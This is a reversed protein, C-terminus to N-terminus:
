QFGPPRKTVKKQRTKLKMLRSTFNIDGEFFPMESNLSFIDTSDSSGIRFLFPHLTSALLIGILIPVVSSRKLSDSVLQRRDFLYSENIKSKLQRFGHKLAKQTLLPCESSETANEFIISCVFGTLKTDITDRVYDCAISIAQM